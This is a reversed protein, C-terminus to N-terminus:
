HLRERQVGQLVNQEMQNEADVPLNEWAKALVTQFASPDYSLDGLFTLSTEALDQAYLARRLGPFRDELAEFNGEPDAQIRRAEALADQTFARDHADGIARLGLEQAMAGLLAVAASLLAEQLAAQATLVEEARALSSLLDATSVSSTEPVEALLLLDRQMGIKERLIRDGQRLAEVVDEVNFAPRVDDADDDAM